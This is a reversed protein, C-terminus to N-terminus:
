HVALACFLDPSLITLSSKMVRGFALFVFRNRQHPGIGFGRCRKWQGVNSHIGEVTCWPGRVARYPARSRACGVGGCGTGTRHLIVIQRSRGGGPNALEVPSQYCSNIEGRDIGGRNFSREVSHGRAKIRGVPRAPDDAGLWRHDLGVVSAM